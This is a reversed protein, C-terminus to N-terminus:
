KISFNGRGLQSCYVRKMFEDETENADHQARETYDKDFAERTDYGVQKHDLPQEGAAPAPAEAKTAAERLKSM